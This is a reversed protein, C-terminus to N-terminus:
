FDDTSSVYYDDGDGGNFEESKWAWSPPPQHRSYKTVPPPTVTGDKDLSGRKEDDQVEDPGGRTQQGKRNTPVALHRCCYQWCPFSEGGPKTIRQADPRTGFRGGRLFITFECPERENFNFDLKRRATCMTQTPCHDIAQQHAVESHVGFVFGGAFEIAFTGPKFRYEVIVGVFRVPHSSPGSWKRLCQVFM